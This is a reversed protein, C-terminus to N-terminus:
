LTVGTSPLSKSADLPFGAEALLSRAEDATIVVGVGLYVKQVLEAMDREPSNKARSALILERQDDTLAPLGEIVRVEDPTM